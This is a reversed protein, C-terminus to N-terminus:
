PKIIKFRETNLVVDIAKLTEKAGAKFADESLKKLIGQINKNQKLDSDATELAKFLDGDLYYDDEIWASLGTKKFVPTFAYM